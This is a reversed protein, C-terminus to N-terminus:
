HRLVPRRALPAARSHGGSQAKGCRRAARCRRAHCLRGGRRQVAIIPGASNSSTNSPATAELLAKRWMSASAHRVMSGRATAATSGTCNAAIKSHVAACCASFTPMGKRELKMARSTRSAACLRSIKGGAKALHHARPGHHHQAPTPARRHRQAREIEGGLHQGFQGIHPQGEPHQPAPPV